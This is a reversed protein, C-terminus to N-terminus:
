VARGAGTTESVNCINESCLMQYKRMFKPIKQYVLCFLVGGHNARSKIKQEGESVKIQGEKSKKACVVDGVGSVAQKQCLGM